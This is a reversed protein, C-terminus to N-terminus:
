TCISRPSSHSSLSSLWFQSPIGLDKIQPFKWELKPQYRQSVQVENPCRLKAVSFSSRYITSSLRFLGRFCFKKESFIPVLHMKLVEAENKAYCCRYRQLTLLSLCCNFRLMMGIIILRPFSISRIEGLSLLFISYEVLWPPNMSQESYRNM